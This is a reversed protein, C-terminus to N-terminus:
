EDINTHAHALYIKWAKKQVYIIRLLNIMIIWFLTGMIATLLGILINAWVSFNFLALCLIFVGCFFMWNCNKNLFNEKDTKQRCSIRFWLADFDNHTVSEALGAPLDITEFHYTKDNILNILLSKEIKWGISVCVGYLIVSCGLLVLAVYFLLDDM